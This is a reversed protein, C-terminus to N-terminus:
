TRGIRNSRWKLFGLRFWSKSKVLVGFFFWARLKELGLTDALRERTEGGARRKRAPRRSGHFQWDAAPGSPKKPNQPSKQNKSQFRPADLQLIEHASLSMAIAPISIM